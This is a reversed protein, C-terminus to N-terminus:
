VECQIFMLLSLDLFVYINFGLLPFRSRSSMDIGFDVSNFLKPQGPYGFAADPAFSFISIQLLLKSIRKQLHFRIARQKLLVTSVSDECLQNVAYTETLVDFDNNCSHNRSFLVLKINFIKKWNKPTFIIQKGLAIFSNTYFISNWWLFEVGGWAIESCFKTM